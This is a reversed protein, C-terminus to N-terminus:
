SKSCNLDVVSLATSSYGMRLREFVDSPPLIGKERYGDLSGDPPM